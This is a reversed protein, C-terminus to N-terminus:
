EVPNLTIKYHELMYKMRNIPDIVTDPVYVTIATEGARWAIQTVMGSFEITECKAKMEDREKNVEEVEKKMRNKEKIDQGFLSKELEDEIDKIREDYPHEDLSLEMKYHHFSKPLEKGVMLKAIWSTGKLTLTIIEVSAEIGTELLGKVRM